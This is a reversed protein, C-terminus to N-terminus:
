ARAAARDLSDHGLVKFTWYVRTASGFESIDTGAPVIVVETDNNIGLGAIKAQIDDLRPLLGPAGDISARWGASYQAEIAGPVHGAAYPAGEKTKDRIDLVVLDPAGLHSQLWAADVLPQDTLREAHASGVAALGVVLATALVTLRM